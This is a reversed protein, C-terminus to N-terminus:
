RVKNGKKFNEIAPLYQLNWPVHLGCFNKGKLPMIHDVHYGKPCNDYVIKIDEKNVWKPTAKLKRCRYTASKYTNKSPNQKRWSSSYTKLYKKRFDARKQQNDLSSKIIKDKHKSYYEKFCIKCQYNLGDTTSKNKSFETYDKEIKCRSCCKM